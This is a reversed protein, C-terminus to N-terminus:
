IGGSTKAVWGIQSAINTASANTQATVNINVVKGGVMSSTATNAATSTSGATNPRYAGVTPNLSVAASLNPSAVKGSLATMAADIMSLNGTIGGALGQVTYMGIEAFVKSPSAIGLVKRVAAPITNIQAQIWGTFGSWMNEIGTKLGNVIQEGTDVLWTGAGTLAGEIESPFQTVTSIILNWNDTIGNKFGQIMHQGTQELWTLADAGYAELRAPLQGMWSAISTYENTVGDLFGFLTDKGISILWSGADDLLDLIKGPLSTFWASASKYGDDTGTVFGHLVNEGVTLLWRGATTLSSLIKGPLSAFWATIKPWASVIGNVMGTILTVGTKVLWIGADALLGPIKTPWTILLDKILVFGVIMGDVWGTLLDEGAKVLWNGVDGLAGMIKSPLETFFASIQSWHQIILMPVGIVPAVAALIDPGWQQFFGVIGSVFGSVWGTFSSWASIVRDFVGVATSTIWGVVDHFVSEVVRLSPGFVTNLFDSVQSWHQVLVTVGIALAAVAAIVLGIPNADMLANIIAQVVAWAKIAVVIAGIAAAADVFYPGLTQLAPGLVSAVTAAIQMFPGVAAEVVPAVQEFASILPPLLSTIITAIAPALDKVLAAVFPSITVVVQGIAYGLTSVLPTLSQFATLVTNVAVAAGTFMASLGKSVAPSALLNSIDTLASQLMALGTPAASSLIKWLNGVLAFVSEVTGELGKFATVANQIIPGINLESLWSGFSVGIQSVFQAIMPLYRGGAVMLSAFGNAVANLGPQIVTFATAVQGLFTQLRNNGFAAALTTAVGGLATGAVGAIDTLGVKLQPILTATLQKLPGALGEALAASTTKEMGAMASKMEDVSAMVSKAAPDTSAAMGKFALTVAGVGAALGALAAPAVALAGGVLAMLENVLGAAAPVAATLATGLTGIRGIPVSGSEGGFGGSSKDPTGEAENAARVKEAAEVQQDAAENAAEAAAKQAAAQEAATRTITDATSRASEAERDYAVSMDAAAADVATAATDVSAAVDDMSASIDDSAASADAAMGDISASVADASADTDVAMDRVASVARKIADIFDAANAALEFLVGDQDAV